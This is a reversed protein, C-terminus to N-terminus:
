TPALPDIVDAVARVPNTVETGNSAECKGLRRRCAGSGSVRKDDIGREGRYGVRVASGEVM